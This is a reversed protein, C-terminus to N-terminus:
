WLMMQCDHADTDNYAKGSLWWEFMKDASGFKVFFRENGQKTPVNHWKDWMRQCGLKWLKKHGKWRAFDRAMGKAGAMPCGICGLRKYGEDYLCCYPMNNQKIFSWVDDASWYLIPCLIIKKTKRYLAVSRWLGKRRASEAARVGIAKVKDKETNEKYKECCWRGYRTPLGKCKDVMYMIMHKPQSHWITNPYNNKIFYILEPPDITTNSYDLTYKVGSMEFLKDLVISDKGGSFAVSYGDPSEKLSQPEYLQILGIAKKIKVELPDSM